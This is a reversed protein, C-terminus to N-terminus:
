LFAKLFKGAFKILGPAEKLLPASLNSAFDLDGEKEIISLVNPKNLMDFIDELQKDTLSAYINHIVWGKKLEDGIEEHWAREYKKL